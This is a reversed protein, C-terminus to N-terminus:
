TAVAEDPATALYRKATSLSVGLEDAIQQNTRDMARLEHAKRRKEETTLSGARKTSQAQSRSRSLAVVNSGQSVPEPDPDFRLDSPQREVALQPDLQPEDVPETEAAPPLEPPENEPLHVPDNQPLHVPEILPEFGPPELPEDIPTHAPEDKKSRKGTALLHAGLMAAPPLSAMAKALWGPGAHSANVGMSAILTTGMVALAGWHRKGEQEALWARLAASILLGDVILPLIPALRPTVARERIAMERWADFSLIFAGVTLLWFVGRLITPANMRQKM